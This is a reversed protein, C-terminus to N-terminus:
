FQGGSLCARLSTPASLSFCTERELSLFAFAGVHQLRELLEGGLANDARGGLSRNCM